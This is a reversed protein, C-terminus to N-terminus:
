RRHGFHRTGNNGGHPRTGFNGNNHPKRWAGNHPEHRTPPTPRMVPSSHHNHRPHYIRPRHNHQYGRPIPRHWAGIHGPELRNRYRHFYYRDGSWYPYYYWGQYMYYSIMDNVYFPTGYSIVVTADVEDNYIGDSAFAAMCSSLNLLMVIGILFVIIKKM